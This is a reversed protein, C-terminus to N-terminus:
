LLHESSRLSPYEKLFLAEPRELKPFVYFCSTFSDLSFHQINYMSSVGERPQSDRRAGPSALRKTKPITLHLKPSRLTFFRKKFGTFDLM